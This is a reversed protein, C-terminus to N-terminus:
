SRGDRTGEIWGPLGRTNDPTLKIVTQYAPEADTWRNRASYFGGLSNYAQWDDPRAAM